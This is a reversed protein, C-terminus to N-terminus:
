IRYIKIKLFFASLKENMEKKSECWISSTTAEFRGEGVVTFLRAHLEEENKNTSFKLM